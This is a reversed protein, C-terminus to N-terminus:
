EASCQTKHKITSGDKSFFFTLIFLLDLSRKSAIINLQMNSNGHLMEM